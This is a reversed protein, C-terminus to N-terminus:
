NGHSLSSTTSPMTPEQGRKLAVKVTKRSLGLQKACESARAMASRGGAKRGGWLVKGGNKALSAAIGARQFQRWHQFDAGDLLVVTM